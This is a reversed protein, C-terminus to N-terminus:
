YMQTHYCIYRIHPFTQNQMQYFCTQLWQATDVIIVMAESIVQPVTDHGHLVRISIASENFPM